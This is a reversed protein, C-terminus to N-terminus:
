RKSKESKIRVNISFNVNKVGWIKVIKANNHM